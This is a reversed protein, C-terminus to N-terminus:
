LKFEMGEYGYEWDIENTTQGAKKIQKLQSKYYRDTQLCGHTIKDDSAAPDHHVFIIKKVGERMAIDVGIPSAAHGWDVKDAIEALTYQSDFIMLDVNQYLPLDLGLDVRSTRTAETDVCYSFSKGEHTIKFGWCPDPHDLQYPTVSIDGFMKEKRPELAHCEIKSGLKEYPVPFYPKKFLTPFVENLEPQVAYTNIRNGPIFLPVFFPLGILHDWHFHTFLMDVEGKGKGLPGKLLEYGLNKLGSGADIILRQKDTSVEICSTNGGWGGLKERPLTSLYQELGSRSGGYDAFGSLADRIRYEIENPSLPTPLSGRGGWIKIRM